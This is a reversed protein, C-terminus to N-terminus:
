KMLVLEGFRKPEHPWPRPQKPDSWLSMRRHPEVGDWRAMNFRWTTGAAPPVPKALDDFNSWPVMVELSWGQDKDGSMNLTGRVKTALQVNEFQHRRLFMRPRVHFYDYLVARANMELGYYHEQSADPNLFIEVTDDRYTPDDRKEFQATIDADECDYAIYLAERDWLLRATTKYKPGTQSEWPFLFPVATAKQWVADDLAGDIVPRTETFPVEYRPLSDQALAAMAAGFLCWFTRM